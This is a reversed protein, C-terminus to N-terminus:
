QSDHHLQHQYFMISCTDFGSYPQSIKSWVQLIHFDFVQLDRLIYLTKVEHGQQICTVLLATSISNQCIQWFMQKNLLYWFTKKCWTKSWFGKYLRANQQGHLLFFNIWKTEQTAPSLHICNAVIYMYTCFMQAWNSDRCGHHKLIAQTNYVWDKVVSYKVLVELCQVPTYSLFNMLFIQLINHRRLCLYPSM